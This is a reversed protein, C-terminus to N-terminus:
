ATAASGARSRPAASPSSAHAGNGGECDIAKPRVYGNETLCASAPIPRARDVAVSVPEDSFGASPPHNSRIAKGVFQEDARNRIAHDCVMKAAVRAADIRKMEFDNARLLVGTTSVALGRNM